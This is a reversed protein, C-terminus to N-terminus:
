RVKLVGRKLGAGFEIYEHVRTNGGPPLEISEGVVELHSLVGEVLEYVYVHRVVLRCVLRNSLECFRYAVHRPRHTFGRALHFYGGSLGANKPPVEVLCPVPGSAECPLHVCKGILNLLETRSYGRVNGGSVHEVAHTFGQM